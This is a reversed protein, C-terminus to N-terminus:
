QYGFSACVEKYICKVFVKDFVKCLIELYVYAPTYRLMLGSIYGEGLYSQLSLQRLRCCTTWEMLIRHVLIRISSQQM